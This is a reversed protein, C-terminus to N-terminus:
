DDLCRWVLGEINWGSRGWVVELLSLIIGNLKQNKGGFALRFFLLCVAPSYYWRKGGFNLVLFCNLVFFILCSTIGYTLNVPCPFCANSDILRRYFPLYSGVIVAQRAMVVHVLIWYKSQKTENTQANCQRIM